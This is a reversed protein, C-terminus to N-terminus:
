EVFAACAEDQPSLVIVDVCTGEAQGKAKDCLGSACEAGGGCPVGAAKKAKCVTGGFPNVGPCVLDEACPLLTPHCSNGEAMRTKCTKTKEDCFTASECVDAEGACSKGIAVTRPSLCRGDEDATRRVCALGDISRCDFSSTCPARAAGPGSWPDEDCAKRLLTAESAEIRADAHADKAATICATAKAEVYTTGQPANAKCAAARARICADLTSVACAKRVADSCSARGVADCFGDVTSLDATSEIARAESEAEPEIQGSACAVLMLSLVGYRM